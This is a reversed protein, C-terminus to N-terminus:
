QVFYLDLNRRLKEVHDTITNFNANYSCSILWKKKRFVLEILMGEIRLTDKSIIKSPIDERVFVM